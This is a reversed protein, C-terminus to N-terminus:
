SRPDKDVQGEAGVEGNWAALLGQTMAGPDASGFVAGMVAVATAGALGCAPVREPTIGGLAVVPIGIQGVARRFGDLGLPTSSTSKSLPSYVPSLWAWDAGAREAEMLGPRDHCSRGVPLQPFAARVAAVPLGREPLQVGDAGVMHALDARGTVVLRAGAVGTMTRLAHLRAVRQRDTSGGQAPDRDRDVIVLGAGPCAALAARVVSLIRDDGYTPGDAVIVLGTSGGFM